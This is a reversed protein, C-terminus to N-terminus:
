RKELLTSPDVGFAGAVRVLTGLTAGVECHELKQWHRWHMRIADAADEVSLGREKRLARINAALRKRLRKEAATLPVYGADLIHAGQAVGHHPQAV